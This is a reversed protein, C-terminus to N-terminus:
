TANRGHIRASDLFFYDGEVLHNEEFFFLIFHLFNYKSNSIIVKDSVQIAIKM